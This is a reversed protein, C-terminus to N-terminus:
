KLPFVSLREVVYGFAESTRQPVGNVRFWESWFASHHSAMRPDLAVSRIDEVPLSLWLFEATDSAAANAWARLNDRVTRRAARDGSALAHLELDRARVVEAGFEFKLRVEQEHSFSDDKLTFSDFRVASERRHERMLQPITMEFVSPIKRGLREYRAFLREYARVIREARTRVQVLSKYTVPSLMAGTCITMKQGVNEGSISGLSSAKAHSIAARRLAGVTTELCVGLLTPSYLSWMAVSDSTRTWSSVFTSALTREHAAIASHPDTWGMGFCTGPRSIVLQAFLREVGENRDDFRDARSIRLLGTRWYEAFAFCDVIRFVRQSDSIGKHLDLIWDDEHEQWPEAFLNEVSTDPFSVESM